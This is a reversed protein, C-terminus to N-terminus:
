YWMLINGEPSSLSEEDIDKKNKHVMKLTKM